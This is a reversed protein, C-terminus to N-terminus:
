SADELNLTEQLERKLFKGSANRPLPKEMLWMYQPIKHKAIRDGLFNRLQEADISHGDKLYVAAAVEEGLRDDPVGFVSVEGVADHKFIASEVEACYVNEGGRLVMDKKRDVIFIFGDEDIRAIDGTHLWGETIAESTADPRNLYGKIVQAGKVWLEGIEGDPVAVGNDDFCRAEFCPMAPGASEPKDLFFDASIATIIGCTETMGYGTGPRATEVTAEIKEVLDPQLQAGGGGLSKLSSTDTGEFDPHAILERSMVPVGSITTIQESEVLKLAEGADWKYMHVLKGGAMTISHAVCNNATVHFLPTIVLASTQSVDKAPLKTSTVRARSTAVSQVIHAFALSMANAVCGRHTLQAGKPRGTTGSTYFICADSDPDVMIEPMEGGKEILVDWEIVHASETEARVGVLQPFADSDRLEILQELREKDAIVVKPKSDNLAYELEPTAWWANMGVCAAGISMCAWYALMWEPYNRMAIAVRDGVQVDNEIFWNAISAVHEHAEAYSIREDGYVLYDANGFRLSSLWFDRLTAPQNKYCLLDIGRVNVEELEFQSGEATLEEWAQSLEKYM